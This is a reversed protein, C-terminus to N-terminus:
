EWVRIAHYRYQNYADRISIYPDLAARKLDEYEGLNLSVHNVQKILSVGPLFTLPNTVIDLPLALTDRSCSPGLIPWNNYWGPKMGWYGFTQGFDEDRKRLKLWTKAPDRFGLVGVTTNVGFRALETCTGKLDGQLLCNLTRGPMGLNSFFTAVCVRASQPVVAKYGKAAPKLAWFYMKDNFGFFARNMGQLPDRMPPAPKEDKAFPDKDEPPAKEADPTPAQGARALGGPLLGGLGMLALFALIRLTAM